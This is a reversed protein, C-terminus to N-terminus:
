NWGYRKRGCEQIKRIGFIIPSVQQDQHYKRYLYANDYQANKVSLPADWTERGNGIDLEVTIM